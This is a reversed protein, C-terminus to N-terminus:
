TDPLGNEFISENDKLRVGSGQCRSVNNVHQLDGAGLVVANDAVGLLSIRMFTTAHEEAGHVSISAGDKGSGSALIRLCGGVPEVYVRALDDANLAFGSGYALVDDAKIMRMRVICGAPRGAVKALRM